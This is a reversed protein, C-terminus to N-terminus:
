TNLPLITAMSLLLKKISVCLAITSHDTYLFWWLIPLYWLRLTPFLTPISDDAARCFLLIEFKSIYDGFFAETVFQCVTSDLIGFLRM